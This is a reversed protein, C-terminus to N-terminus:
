GIQKAYEPISDPPNCFATYTEIITDCREGTVGGMSGCTKNIGQKEQSYSLNFPAGSVEQMCFVVNVTEKEFAEPLRGKRTITKDAFQKATFRAIYGASCSGM